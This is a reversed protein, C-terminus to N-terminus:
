CAYYRKKELKEFAVSADKLDVLDVDKDLVSALKQQIEWKEVPSIKVETLFAIDIDSEPTEQNAAYSGFIYIGQLEPINQDLFNSITKYLEEKLQALRQIL